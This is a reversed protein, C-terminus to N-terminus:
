FVTYTDVSIYSNYFALYVGFSPSLITFSNILGQLQCLSWYFRPFTATKLISLTKERTAYVQYKDVTYGKLIALAMFGLKVDATILFSTSTKKADLVTRLCHVYRCLGLFGAITTPFVVSNIVVVVEPAAAMFGASEYQFNAQTPEVWQPATDIGLM